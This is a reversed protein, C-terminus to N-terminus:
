HASAAPVPAPAPAPNAAVGRPPWSFDDARGPPAPVADGRVLVSAALPNDNASAPGKAGLLDGTQGSGTAALPLVPGIV